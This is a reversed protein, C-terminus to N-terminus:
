PPSLLLCAAIYREFKILCLKNSLMVSRLQGQAGVTQETCMQMTWTADNANHLTCVACCRCLTRVDDSMHEASCSCQGLRMVPLTCCAWQVAEACHLSSGKITVACFYHACSSQKTSDTMAIAWYGSFGDLHPRNIHQVM